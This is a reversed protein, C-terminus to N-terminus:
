RMLMVFNVANFLAHGVIPALLNDTLEYVWVLVLGVFALPLFTVLNTHIAAFALATIWTAVWPPGHQKLFPYLLGRFLIEEVLPALLIAGLAFAIRQALGVTVRLVRVTQQEVPQVRVRQLLMNCGKNLVLAGPVMVTSAILAVALARKLKPGAFGIFDRWRMEHQKLFQHTLFLAVGHFTITTLLFQHFAPATPSKPNLLHGLALSLLIGLSWSLMLGAGLLLIAEVKWPKESLM